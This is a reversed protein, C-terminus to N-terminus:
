RAELKTNGASGVTAAGAHGPFDKLVAEGVSKGLEYGQIDATRFHIGGWVRADNVEKAIASFSAYTRTVGFVPPHTVSVLVSDTKLAGRLVAEAAGSFCAHASPYEPHPPTGLLPEWTADGVLQGMKKNAAARIATIPRWHMYEYKHKFCAIQSDASAVALMAFVRANDLVPAPRAASAARAAAFWPVATQVTWFVAAATQDATRTKSNRAGLEKVEEFDAGFLPSTLAPPAATSVADAQVLFPKVRGWGSLIPRLGHPPTVQYLGRGEKLTVEVKADFGDAARIALLKEAVEKGLALGNAKGAGEPLKGLAAQYATEITAGQSPALRTLVERAAGAVAADISITGARQADIAYSPAEPTVARAADYIAAHVIALVRSQLISNPPIATAEIAVANWDSVADAHAPANMACLLAATSLASRTFSTLMNIEEVDLAHGGVFKSSAM